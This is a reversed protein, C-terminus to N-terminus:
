LPEKPFKLLVLLPNNTTITKIKSSPWFTPGQGEKLAKLVFHFWHFSDDDCSRCYLRCLWAVRMQSQLKPNLIANMLTCLCPLGYLKVMMSTNVFIVVLYRYQSSKYPSDHSMEAGEGLSEWWIWKAEDLRKLQV